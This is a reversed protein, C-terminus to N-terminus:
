RVVRTKVIQYYSEWDRADCMQEATYQQAAQKADEENYYAELLSDEWSFLVYIVPHEKM